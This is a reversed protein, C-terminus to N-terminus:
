RKFVYNSLNVGSLFWNLGPSDLELLCFNEEPVKPPLWNVNELHQQQSGAFMAGEQITFGLGLNVKCHVYM